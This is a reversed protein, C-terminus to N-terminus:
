RQQFNTTSDSRNSKLNNVPPPTDPRGTGEVDVGVDFGVDVGDMMVEVGLRSVWMLWNGWQTVVPFMPSGAQGLVVRELLRTKLEHRCEECAPCSYSM